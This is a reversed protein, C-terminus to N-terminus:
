SPKEGIDEGSRTRVTGRMLNSDDSSTKSSKVEERGKEDDHRKAIGRTAM